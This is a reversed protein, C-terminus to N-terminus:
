IKTLVTALLSLIRARWWGSRIAKTERVALEFVQRAREPMRADSLERAARAFTAARDFASEIKDTAMVAQSFADVASGDLKVALEWLTQAKLTPDKQKAINALAKEPAALDTWGAAIRALATDAAFVRDIDLVATEARELFEAAINSRGRGIEATAIKTVALVYLQPTRLREATATAKSPKGQRALMGAFEVLAIQDRSADGIRGLMESTERSLGARAYASAVAGLAIRSPNDFDDLLSGITRFAADVDGTAGREGRNALLEAAIEIAGGRDELHPLLTLLADRAQPADPTAIAIALLARARNWPDPITETLRFAEAHYGAEALSAAAERLSVLVLRLDSLQKISARAAAMRGAAAQARIVDRLAWDRYDERGIDRIAATAGKLLCDVDPNRFCAEAGEPPLAALVPKESLLLDRTAASGQLASRAREVQEDRARALRRKLTAARGVTEMHRLLAENATGDVPLGSQTQYARIAQQTEPTIRGAAPGAFLDFEILLHQVQEILPSWEFLSGRASRHEVPAFTRAAQGPPPLAAFCAALLGTFVALHKPTM